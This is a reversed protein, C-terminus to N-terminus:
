LITQGADIDAAAMGVSVNRVVVDAKSRELWLDYQGADLREFSFYGVEDVLQHAVIRGEQVLWVKGQALETVALGGRTVRGRM